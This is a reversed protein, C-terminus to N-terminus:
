ALRKVLKRGANKISGDYGEFIKFSASLIEPELEKLPDYESGYLNMVISGATECAIRM